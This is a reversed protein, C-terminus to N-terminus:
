EFEGRRRWYRKTFGNRLDWFLVFAGFGSALALLFGYWHASAASFSGYNYTSTESTNTLTGNDYNYTTVLTEGTKYEFSGVMLLVGLNFLFFLGVFTFYPEKTLAGLAVSVLALALLLLFVTTIM